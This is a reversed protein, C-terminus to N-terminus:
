AVERGPIGLPAFLAAEDVQARYLALARAVKHAQRFRTQALADSIHDLTDLTSPRVKLLPIGNEEATKFVTPDPDFGETLVICSTDTALAPMHIDPRDGGAVVAKRSRRQFYEQAGEDSMAAIMVAEVPQDLQDNACLVQAGLASALEGVTMGLLIRDEPIVGVVTLGAEHLSPIVRRQVQREGKDPVANLIVPSTAGGSGAGIERACAVVAEALGEPQYRAVILPLAPARAAGAAALAPAVAAPQGVEVLLVGPEAPWRWGGPEAALVLSDAPATLRLAKAVFAADPLAGDGALRRYGVSQGLRRLRQGLAVAIATKGANTDPSTVVLTSM